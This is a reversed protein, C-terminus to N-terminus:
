GGGLVRLVEELVPRLLNGVASVQTGVLGLVPVAVYTLLNAVFASDFTVHGPETGGIRSLTPNRDISLFVWPVALVALSFLVWLALSIFQKPEFRYSHVAVLALLGSTVAGLLASRMHSFVYRLYVAVRLALVERVDALKALPALAEIGRDLLQELRKRNAIEAEADERGDVELIEALPRDFAEDHEEVQVKVRRSLAELKRVSVVLGRFPPIRLAFSKMPRWELDPALRTFAKQLEPSALDFRKLLRQTERWLACFRFFSLASLSAIGVLLCLFYRGYWQSEAIPQIATWLLLAPPLFLLVPLLWLMWGKSPLTTDTWQAIEELLAKAGALVPEDLEALPCRVAQRAVLTRRKMENLLWAYGGGVLLGLSLVPSLGSSFTLIRLYAYALGDKGGPVWWWYLVLGVVFHVGVALAIWRVWEGLTDKGRKSPAVRVTTRVLWSYAAFFGAMFFGWRWLDFNTLSARTFFETALLIPMTALVLLISAALTLTTLGIVLLWRNNDTLRPSVGEIDTILTSKKLWHGLVVVLLAFFLLQLDVKSAWSKSAEDPASSAQDPPEKREAGCFAFREGPEVPLRALPWISGNSVVAIWATPEGIEREGLLHRVAAVMGQEFDSSYQRRADARASPAASPLGPNGETFLPYSSIVVMGDTADSLKPHAYLLSNDLSFLVAGPVYRRVEEALFLKDKPDTAQIGIYRFEERSVTELIKSIVLDDAVPTLSSLPPVRDVPDTRERDILNLDMVPRSPKWLSELAKEEATPEANTTRRLTRLDSLHSPFPVLTVPWEDPDDTPMGYATDDEHLLAVRKLDWGMSRTLFGAARKLLADDPLVTRCFERCDGTLLGELGAATASGTAIRFTWGSRAALSKKLSPATGSFTPGFIGVQPTEGPKSLRDILDLAAAMAERHLGAKPTEGVVLVAALRSEGRFLLIGPIERYRKDDRAKNELWPLWYRDFLYHSQAFGKQVGHIAEDFLVPLPTDVPDPVLAVYFDIRPKKEDGAFDALGSEDCALEVGTFDAIRQAANCWPPLSPAPEKPRATEKEAGSPKAAAAPAVEKKEEGPRAGPRVGTLAVLAVMVLLWPATNKM